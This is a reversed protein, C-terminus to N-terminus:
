YATILPVLSKGERWEIIGRGYCKACKFSWRAPLSGTVNDGYYVGHRGDATEYHRRYLNQYPHLDGTDVWELGEGNCASCAFSKPM